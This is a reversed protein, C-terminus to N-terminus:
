GRGVWQTGHRTDRPSAVLEPDLDGPLWPSDEIGVALSELVEVVALASDLRQAPEKALLQMVLDSFRQPVRPALGRPEEPTETATRLLTQRLNKGVFPQRATLCEYIVVGLAFLDSRTDYQGSELSEPPIYGPTGRIQRKDRTAFSLLESIGFDTVKIEGDKGILVNAPKIDHHVLQHAHAEVLARAVAMAVHLAREPSLPGHRALLAELSPGDVFEMAICTSDGGELVDYVTVINPHNFRAYAVAEEVLSQSLKQRDFKASDLRITKLAVSRRLRPDWGRFVNGMSGSGALEIVQYRGLFVQGLEDRDRQGQELLRFSEELQEIESGAVVKAASGALERQAGVIRRLPRVVSFYALALVVGSLVLVLGAALWRARDIRARAIEAQRAPQRSLVFWPTGHVLHHAVVLQEVGAFSYRQCSSTLKGSAALEVAGPPFEALDDLGGYFVEGDRDALVLHAEEGLEIVQVMGALPEGEALLILYGQEEVLAVRFFLWEASSGAVLGMPETSELVRSLAPEIEARLDRRQAALYSEGALNYTAVLVVDARAHLLGALLEGATPSGPDSQIAPQNATSQALTRLGDLHAAVREACSAAAIIHSRQVQALLGDENSRLQYFGILLPLLGIVSLTLALRALLPLRLPKM